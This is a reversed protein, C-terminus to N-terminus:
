AVKPKQPTLHHLCFAAASMGFLANGFGGETPQTIGALKARDIKRWLSFDCAALIELKKQQHM